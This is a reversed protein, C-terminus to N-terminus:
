RVAACCVSSCCSSPRRAPCARRRRRAAGFSGTSGSSRMRRACRRGSRAQSLASLHVARRGSGGPEGRRGSLAAAVEEHIAHAGARRRTGSEAYIMRRYDETLEERLRAPAKAECIGCSTRRAANFRWRRGSRRAAGGGPGANGDIVALVPAGVHRTSSVAVVERWSPRARKAPWGCTWCSASAMRRARGADRAGARARAAQRHPGQSVLRGHVSVPDRGRRSRPAAVDRFGRALRGVLRSVADKSLPGAVCCRRWRARSAGPTAHGSLYVGLIAEDVRETRRQYRPVTSAGGNAHTTARRRGCARGRCRSREDAGSEDDVDARPDWASLGPAGDGVRASTAAGLAAELEEEVIADIM